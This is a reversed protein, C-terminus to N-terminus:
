GIEECSIWLHTCTDYELMKKLRIEEFPWLGSGYCGLAVGQTDADCNFSGQFPPRIGYMGCM